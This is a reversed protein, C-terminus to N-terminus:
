SPEHRAPRHGAGRELLPGDGPLFWLDSHDGTRLRIRCSDTFYFRGTPTPSTPKGVVVPVEIVVNEGDLVRLNRKSLSVEVRARTTTLTVESARVWGQTGNPRVPILVHIWGGRRETAVFVANFGFPDPSSFVWGGESRYRGEVGNTLSPIEPAEQREPSYAPWATVDSLQQRPGTADGEPISERAELQAFVATAITTTLPDTPALDDAVPVTVTPPLTITTTTTTASVEALSPSNATSLLVVGIWAAIGVVAPIALAAVRTQRQV